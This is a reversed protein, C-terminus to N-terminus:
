EPIGARSLIQTAVGGALRYREVAQRVQCRVISNAGDAGMLRSQFTAESKVWEIVDALDSRWAPGALAVLGTRPGGRLYAWAPIRIGCNAGCSPCLRAVAMGPVGFDAATASTVPAGALWMENLAVLQTAIATSSAVLGSQRELVLLRRFGAWALCNVRAGLQQAIARLLGFATKRILHGDSGAGAQRCGIVVLAVAREADAAARWALFHRNPDDSCCPWGPKNPRITTSRSDPSLYEAPAIAITQPAPEQRTSIIAQGRALGGLVLGRDSQIGLAGAMEDQDAPSVVRHSVKLNTNRIVNSSVKAPSQDVVIVQEGFSRVETLMASLLQASAAQASGADPDVPSRDLEPLVRHAEELVLLHEIPRVKTRQRAKAWTALALMLVVFSREEDDVLDALTVVTPRALMEEVMDSDPWAFRHARHPALLVNLRTQLSARINSHAEPAYGLGSVLPEVMDRVDFLETGRPGGPQTMVQDFLQTVVYPTPSPMTFAAKFAQAVHAVHILPDEGPWAQMINLHLSRGTVVQLGGRFLAAADSYEDKVPDLVLFPIRHDNWVSALIRQLTTTKGAGTTGTVFAHGELDSVDISAPRESSWYSGLMIRQSARGPRRNLPPALRVALGPVSAAPPALLGAATASTLISQPAASSPSLQPAEYSRFWRDQDDNLSGRLAAILHDVAADSPGCAWCSVGWLGFAGGQALQGQLAALWAQVRSWGASVTTTSRSATEQKTVSLQEAALDALGDLGAQATAIDDEHASTLRFAISWDGSIASLRDLLSTAMSASSKARSSEPQLRYRLGVMVPGVLPPPSASTVDCRPALHHRVREQLGRAAAVYLRVGDGDSGQIQISLDGLAGSIGALMGEFPGPTDPDATPLADVRLWGEQPLQALGCSRLPFPGRELEALVQHAPTTRQASRLGLLRQVDVTM